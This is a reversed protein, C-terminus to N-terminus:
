RTFLRYVRVGAWMCFRVWGPEENRMAAYFVDDTFKGSFDQHYFWDHIVSSVRARGAFIAHIFPVRPVSALDTVFGAPIVHTVAKGERIVEFRFDQVVEWSRWRPQLLCPSLFVVQVKNMM